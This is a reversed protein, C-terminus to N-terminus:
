ILITGCNLRLHFFSKKFRETRAVFLSYDSFNRLSYHSREFVRSPLLEKLYNPVLNKFIKFYLTMKHISCRTKMDEWGIEQMLNRRSTGKMADTVVKAAEYQVSELHDSETDTCGDWLSDAYEMLPRILSRYLKNLTERSVKYQIGKFLNLRRNTKEYIGLIHARWFLNSSLTVGLHTRQSVEVIKKGEFFLDAHYPKFRKVSFTICVTKIPNITVLWRRAWNDIKHLDNNLKTSSVDPSDVIDFLSTDDAYLLCDSELDNTIDNIYILFLLPGLVSGQPVGADISRWQSTQGDIVRQKRNFWSLM